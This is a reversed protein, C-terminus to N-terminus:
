NSNGLKSVLSRRVASELKYEAIIPIGDKKNCANKTNQEETKHDMLLLYLSVFTYYNTPIMSLIIGLTRTSNHTIERKRLSKLIKGKKKTKQSKTQNRLGDNSAKKTFCYVKKRSRDINEVSVQRPDEREEEKKNFFQPNDCIVYDSLKVAKREKEKEKKNKQFTENYIDTNTLHQM